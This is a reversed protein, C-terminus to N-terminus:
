KEGGENSKVEKETEELSKLWHNFRKLAEQTQISTLSFVSKTPLAARMTEKDVGKAGLAMCVHILKLRSTFDDFVERAQDETLEKRSQIESPLWTRWIDESVGAAELAKCMTIINMALPRGCAWQDLGSARHSLTLAEQETMTEQQEPSLLPQANPISDIESEDLFGLGCISLTVRRKAKTVAKMRANALNESALGKVWACGEDIDERGDLTRAYATAVFCGEEIKTEMRWISVNRLAKLQAACDKNAYITVVEKFVEKGNEEIKKKIKIFDFPKTLPNLGLSKCLYNYYSVRQDPTLDSVDGKIIVQELIKDKDQQKQKQITTTSSESM